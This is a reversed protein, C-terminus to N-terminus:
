DMNNRPLIYHSLISIGRKIKSDDESCKPVRFKSQHYNGPYTISALSGQDKLSDWNRSRSSVYLSRGADYIPAQFKSYEYSRLSSPRFKPGDRKFDSSDSLYRSPNYRTLKVNSAKVPTLRNLVSSAAYRWNRIDDEIDQITNSFTDKLSSVANYKQGQTMIRELDDEDDYLASYRLLRERTSATPSANLNWWRRHATRPIATHYTLIRPTPTVSYISVRPYSSYISPHYTSWYTTPMYISRLSSTYPSLSTDTCGYSSDYSSLYGRHSIPRDYYFHGTM